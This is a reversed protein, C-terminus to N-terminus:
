SGDDSVRLYSRTRAPLETYGAAPKRALLAPRPPLHVPSRAPRAPLSISIHPGVTPSISAKTGSTSPITSPLPRSAGGPILSAM